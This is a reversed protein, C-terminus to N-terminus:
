IMNTSFLYEFIEIQRNCSYNIPEIYSNYLQKDNVIKSNKIIEKSIIINFLIKTIAMHDYRKCFKFKREEKDQTIKETKVKGYLINLTDQCNKNKCDDFPIFYKKKDDIIEGKNIKEEVKSLKDLYFSNIINPNIIEFDKVISKVLDIVKDFLFLIDEKSVPNTPIFKLIETIIKYKTLIRFKSFNLGTTIKKMKENKQLLNESSLKESDYINFQHGQLSKQVLKKVSFM